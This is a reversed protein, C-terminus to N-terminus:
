EYSSLNCKEKLRAFNASVQRALGQRTSFSLNVQLLEAILGLADAYNQLQEYIHSYVSEIMELDVPRHTHERMRKRFEEKTTKGDLFEIVLEEAKNRPESLGHVLRFRVEGMKSHKKALIERQSGDLEIRDKILRLVEDAADYDRQTLEVDDM